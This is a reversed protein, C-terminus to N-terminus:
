ARGEVGITALMADLRDLFNQEANHLYGQLLRRDWVGCAAFMDAVFQVMGCLTDAIVEVLEAETFHEAALQLFLYEALGTALATVHDHNIASPADAVAKELWSAIENKARNTIAASM